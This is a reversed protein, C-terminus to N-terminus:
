SRCISLLLMVSVLGRSNRRNDVQQLPPSINIATSFSKRGSPVSESSSLTDISSSAFAISGEHNSLRKSPQREPVATPPSTPNGKNYFSVLSQVKTRKKAAASANESLTSAASLTDESPSTTLSATELPSRDGHELSLTNPQPMARPPLYSKPKPSVQQSAPQAQPQVYITEKNTM